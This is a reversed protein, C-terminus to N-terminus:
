EGAYFNVRPCAMFAWLPLEVKEKVEASSPLPHNVGRGPRKVWPFSVRYRNNLRSLPGWPRYPRTRFIDGGGPNKKNELERNKVEDTSTEIGPGDLGHRTAVGVVSDGAWALWCLAIFDLKPTRDIALV